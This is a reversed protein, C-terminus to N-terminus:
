KGIGKKQFAELHDLFLPTWNRAAAIFAAMASGGPGNGTHCAWLGDGEPIFVGHVVLSDPSAEYCRAISAMAETMDGPPGDDEMESMVWFDGPIEALLERMKAIAEDLTLESAENM